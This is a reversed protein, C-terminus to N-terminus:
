TANRIDWFGQEVNSVTKAAESCKDLVTRASEKNTADLSALKSSGVTITLDQFGKRVCVSM